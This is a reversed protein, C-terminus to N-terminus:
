YKIDYQGLEVVWKSIRGSFDAKRFLTKLPHETVVVITYTQFYHSLKRSASVLALAFKELQLYRTEADLLIKSKYYIPRQQENEERILVSNVAHNSVALYLNLEEGQTPISLLPPSSLYHKLQQLAQDCDPTWQFTSSKHLLQFFPRYKDSARSIFRNLAAAMGTLRQVQKASTPSQVEQIVSIQDPNAEIGRRTVLSGLFKGSSVSFACKSTNLKLQFQRLIDFKQSLDALHNQSRKSKVAMDDTYVEVMKGLQAQFMKTVLRQYTARENKLGFPMVKYCYTGQPTIFATKEQDPRSMPIQHYGQYADLFSM